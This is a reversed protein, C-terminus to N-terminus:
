PSDPSLMQLHEIKNIINSETANQSYAKKLTMYKTHVSFEM